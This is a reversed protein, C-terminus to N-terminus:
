HRFTVVMTLMVIGVAVVAGIAIVTPLDFDRLKARLRSPRRIPLTAATGLDGYRAPDVVPAPALPQHDPLTLLVKSSPGSTAVFFPAATLDIVTDTETTRNRQKLDM